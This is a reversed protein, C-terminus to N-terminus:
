DRLETELLGFLVAGLLFLLFADYNLPSIAPEAGQQMYGRLAATVEESSQAVVPRLHCKCHPHNPPVPVANMPYPPRVRQGALDISAHGACVACTPDGALSRAVDMGGVYPNMAASLYAAYNHARAIETRALRMADYSAGGPMFRRGYPKLTRIGAREPLLYAELARALELAGRGDVLGRALLADIKKRVADSTLWIRDSLRYGNPDNWRHMPVWRRTPDIQALPNNYFMGIQVLEPREAETLPRTTTTTLWQVVDAPMNALMWDRHMAVVDAVARVYWRNLIRAYETLATEGDPAFAERSNPVVFAARTALEVERRMAGQAAEPIRGDRGAYRLIIGSLRQHLAEFMGRLDAALGLQAQAMLRKGAFEKM